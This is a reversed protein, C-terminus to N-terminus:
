KGEWFFQGCDVKLIEITVSDSVPNCPGAPDDTTLTLTVSGRLADAPSPLYRVATGFRYTDTLIEGAADIFDGTGDSSTWTAGFAATTDPTVIAGEVLKIPQTSCITFPDAVTVTLNCRVGVDLTLDQEGSNLFDTPDSQATSDTLSISNDSDDGDDDGTNPTTFDYFEANDATSIDFFVSYSGPSLNDFLYSGTPDTMVIGTIVGGDADTLVTDGSSDLLVVTVGGIGPEGPTQLGDNNLDIFATDGISVPDFVSLECSGPDTVMFTVTCTPDTDDVITLMVDGAGASGNALRLMMESGYDVVNALNGNGKFVAGSGSTISYSTGFGMGTPNLRFSIYDDTTTSGTGNDNCSVGTAVAMLACTAGCGAPATYSATNACTLDDSFAITLNHIASDSALNPLNFSLPSSVPLAVTLFATGDESLVMNGTAPPDVFTVMGILSYTGDTCPSPTVELSLGCVPAGQDSCDAPAQIRVRATCAPAESFRATVTRESGEAILGSLTYAQPTNFPADFTISQGGASVTLTGAVPADTFSVSGNVAFTNTAPVCTGPFATLSVGCEGPTCGAPATFGTTNTCGVNSSFSVTVMQSSGDAELGTLEYTTPSMFPANFVQTFPGVRVTMTGDAPADSFSLEGGLDYTNTAPSCSGPIATISVLCAGADACVEPARFALSAACSANDSFAASVVHNLGDSNLDTLVFPQPSTFANFTAAVVGDVRVLLSGTAPPTTFTIAGTLDYNSDAADCDGPSASLVVSCNVEPARLFIIAPDADDEDTLGNEDGPAGGPNMANGLVVDDSPSNVKGGKDNNPMNDPTSDKDTGGNASSIEASNTISDDTFDTNVTFQVTIPVRGGAPIFPIPTELVGVGNELNWTDDDVLTLGNPIYDTVQVDTATATGQNFVTIEYTVVDGLSVTDTQTPALKKRLALDFVPTSVVELCAESRDENGVNAVGDVTVLLSNFGVVNCYEGALAARIPIEITCTGPAISTGSALTVLIDGATFAMVGACTGTNTGTAAVEMGQPFFDIFDQDLTMNGNNPNTIALTLVSTQGLEVMEPNVNKTIQPAIVYDEDVMLDTSDQYCNAGVNTVFDGAGFGNRFIGSGPVIVDVFVKSIGAPIVTGAPITFTNAGAVPTIGTLETVLNPDNAIVMQVGGATPFNDVFDQTVEIPDANNNVIEFKLRTPFDPKTFAPSFEKTLIPPNPGNVTFTVCSEDDETATNVFGPSSDPDNPPYYSDVYACNQYSGSVSATVSFTLTATESPDLSPISWGGSPSFEGTSASSSEVVLNLDIVDGISIDTATQTGNNVVSVSFEYLTNCATGTNVDITKEVELDVFDDTKCATSQMSNDVPTNEKSISKVLEACIIACGDCSVPVVGVTYDTVCLDVDEDGNFLRITYYETCTPNALGPFDASGGTIPTAGAFDPGTYINGPSIGIRTANTAGTVNIVGDDNSVMGADCTSPTVTVSAQPFPCIYPCFTPPVSVVADLVCDERFLRVTFDTPVLKVGITDTLIGDAPIVAATAFTENGTYTSGINFDFKEGAAFNELILKGNTQTPRCTSAEARASILGPGCTGRVCMDDYGVGGGILQHVLGFIIEFVVESNGDSCMEAGSFPFVLPANNVNGAMINQTTSYILVGNKKVAVGQTEFAVAGRFQKQLFKLSFETLCGVEGAPIRYEVFMNVKDEPKWVTSAPDFPAGQYVRKRQALGVDYFNVLCIANRYWGTNGQGKSGLLANGCGATETPCYTSAGGIFLPRFYGYRGIRQGDCGVPYTDFTWKALVEDESPCINQGWAPSSFLLLIAVPGAYLCVRIFFPICKRLIHNNM